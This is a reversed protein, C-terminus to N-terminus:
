EGYITTVITESTTIKVIHSGPNDTICRRYARELDNSWIRWIWHKDYPKGLWLTQCLHFTYQVEPEM